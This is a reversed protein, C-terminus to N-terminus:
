EEDKEAPQETVTGASCIDYPNNKTWAKAATFYQRLSHCRVPLGLISCKGLVTTHGSKVLKPPYLPAPDKQNVIRVSRSVADEFATNFAANGVRPAAVSILLFNLEPFVVSMDAAAATAIAGGLSHGTLIITEYPKPNGKSEAQKNQMLMNSLRAVLNQRAHKYQTIFGHHVRGAPIPAVKKDHPPGLTFDERNPSADLWFDVPASSGKFAVIGLRKERSTVTVFRGGWTATKQTTKDNVTVALGKLGPCFRMTKDKEIFHKKPNYVMKSAALAAYGYTAIDKNIEPNGGSTIMEEGPVAEPALAGGASGKAKGGGQANAPALTALTALLLLPLLRM